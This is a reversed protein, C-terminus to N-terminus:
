LLCVFLCFVCDCHNIVYVDILEKALENCKKKPPMYILLLM